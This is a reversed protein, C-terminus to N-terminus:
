ERWEEHFICGSRDVSLYSHRGLINLPNLKSIRISRVRILSITIVEGRITHSYDGGILENQFNLALYLEYIPISVAIICM